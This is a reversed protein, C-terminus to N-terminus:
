PLSPAFPVLDRRYTAKSGRVSRGTSRVSRTRIYSSLNETISSFFINLLVSSRPFVDSRDGGLRVSVRLVVRVSLEVLWSSSFVDQLILFDSLVHSPVSKNEFRGQCARASTVMVTSHATRCRISSGTRDDARFREDLLVVQLVLSNLDNRLTLKRLSV